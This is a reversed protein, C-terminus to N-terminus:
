PEVLIVVRWRHRRSRLRRPAGTWPAERREFDRRFIEAVMNLDNAAQAHQRPEAYFGPSKDIAVMFDSGRRPEVFRVARDSNQEVAHNLCIAVLARRMRLKRRQYETKVGPRGMTGLQNRRGRDVKEALVLRQSAPVRVGRRQQAGFAEVGEGAM